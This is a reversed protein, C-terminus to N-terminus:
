TCLMVFNYILAVGSGSGAFFKWGSKYKGALVTKKLDALCKAVM